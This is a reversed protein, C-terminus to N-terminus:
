KQMSMMYMAMLTMGRGKMNMFIDDDDEDDEDEYKTYGMLTETKGNGNLDPDENGDGDLEDTKDVSSTGGMLTLGGFGFGDQVHDKDKESTSGGSKTQEKLVVGQILEKEDDDEDLDYKGGMLTMGKADGYKDEDVDSDKTVDGM